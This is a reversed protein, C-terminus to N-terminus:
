LGAGEKSGKGSIELALRYLLNRECRTVRGAIEVARSVPLEQLLEVLLTRADDAASSASEEAAGAVLIVFEGRVHESRMRLWDRLEELSASQVTEHVKTLEKALVASRDGGFLDRLDELTGEIRHPAEYFLLTRTESRLSALRRRRAARRAPLFGEFVFRDTPLGSVSLACVLACPGPVARVRGGAQHVRRVLHLGPDSISPTGADCILALHEGKELRRLVQTAVRRENHDHLPSLRTAIGHVALLRRSHRTDEALVGDVERLTQLARASIDGANGIPTAVVYLVGGPRTSAASPDRDTRM